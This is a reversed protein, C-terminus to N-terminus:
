PLKINPHPAVRLLRLGDSVLNCEYDFRVDRGDLSLPIFLFDADFSNGVKRMYQCLVM